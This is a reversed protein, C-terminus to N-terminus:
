GYSMPPYPQRSDDPSGFFFAPVSGDTKSFLEERRVSVSDLTWPKDDTIETLPRWGELMRSGATTPVGAQCFLDKLALPVGALPGLEEGADLRADVAAAQALAGEADVHLFAHVDGDVRAIQDLFARTVEVSTLERAAIRRGLEAATATLIQATM